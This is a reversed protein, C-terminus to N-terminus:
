NANIIGPFSVQSFKLLSHTLKWTGSLDPIHPPGLRATDPWGASIAPPAVSWTYPYGCVPPHTRSRMWDWSLLKQVENMTLVIDWDIEPAKQLRLWNCASSIYWEIETLLKQIETLRLATSDTYWVIEPCNKMYRMSHRPLNVQIKNWRVTTEWELDLISILKFLFSIYIYISKQSRNM